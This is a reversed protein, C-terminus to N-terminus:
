KYNALKIAQDLVQDGKMMGYALQDIVDCKIGLPEVKERIGKELYRVQPGILVVDLDDLNNQLESEAIANIEADIVRKESAKKMKDVLMSTSMGASCVLLIKM